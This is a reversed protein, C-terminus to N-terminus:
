QLVPFGELLTEVTEMAAKEDRMDGSMRRLDNFWV